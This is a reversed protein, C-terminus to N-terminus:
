KIGRTVDVNWGAGDLGPMESLDGRQAEPNGSSNFFCIRWTVELTKGPQLVDAVDHCHYFTGQDTEVAMRVRKINMPLPLPLPRMEALAKDWDIM